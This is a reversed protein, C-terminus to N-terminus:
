KKVDFQSKRSTYRRLLELIHNDQVRTKDLKVDWAGELKIPKIHYDGLLEPVHLKGEGIEKCAIMLDYAIEDTVVSDQKYAPHRRVFKRMWTAATDLEGTARKQILDLYEGIRKETATDCNILELYAWVLPILGPFYDGKGTMIEEMTMEEYSNEESGGSAYPAHKRNQSVGEVSGNSGNTEEQPSTVPADDTNNVRSFMSTYRVGYGDDGEELPALHRRFFFKGKTVAGRSHARQMNADVRSIPIYMNLDFTLIVRTILVIFVTFAANEFDTLQMEM